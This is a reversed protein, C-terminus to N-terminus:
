EDGAEITEQEIVKMDPPPAGLTGLAVIIASIIPNSSMDQKKVGGLGGIKAIREVGQSGLTKVDEPTLSNMWHETIIKSKEELSANAKGLTQLLPKGDPPQASRDKNISSFGLAKLRDPDGGLSISSM